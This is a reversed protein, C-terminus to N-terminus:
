NKNLPSISRRIEALQEALIGNLFVVISSILLIVGLSRIGGLFLLQCMSISFGGAFLIFALPFFLKQPQFVMIIRIIIHLFKLGDKFLQINSSGYKRNTIKVLPLYKIFYGSSFFALTSTSPYSYRLPYLHAFKLFCEKKVARFGSTLDAIKHGSINQAVATLLMNGINRHWLTNNALTRAGVVMDYDPLHELLKPIDEPQHQLDADMLVLFERTAALAGSKVAAGNGTNYPHRVLKAGGAKALIDTKDRSGDSCVIVEFDGSVKFIRELLESITAEENYAPIVISVKQFDVM